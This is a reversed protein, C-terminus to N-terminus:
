TVRQAGTTCLGKLPGSPTLCKFADDSSFLSNAQQPWISCNTCTTRFWHVITTLTVPLKFSFSVAVQVLVRMIDSMVGTKQGSVVQGSSSYILMHRLIFHICYVTCLCLMLIWDLVFGFVFVFIKLQYCLCDSASFEFLIKISGPFLPTNCKKNIKKLGEEEFFLKVESLNKVHRTHVVRKLDNWM